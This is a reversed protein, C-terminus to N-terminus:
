ASALSIHTHTQLAALIDANAMCRNYVNAHLTIAIDSTAKENNIM